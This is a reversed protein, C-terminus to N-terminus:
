VLTGVKERGDLWARNEVQTTDKGDDVAKRPESGRNYLLHRYVGRKLLILDLLLTLSDHEVYPDVFAYCTTQVLANRLQRRACHCSTCV